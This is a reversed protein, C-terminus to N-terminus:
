QRRWGFDVRRTLPLSNTRSPPSFVSSQVIAL